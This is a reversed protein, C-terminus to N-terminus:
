YTKKNVFSAIDTTVLPNHRADLANIGPKNLMASLDQVLKMLNKFKQEISSLEPTFNPSSIACFNVRPKPSSITRASMEDEEFQAM